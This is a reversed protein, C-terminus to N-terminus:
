DLLDAITTRDVRSTRDLSRTARYRNLADLTRPGAIGDFKGPDFGLLSLKTQLERVESWKLRDLVTRATQTETVADPSDATASPIRLLGAGAVVSALWMIAVMTGAILTTGAIRDLAVLRDGFTVRRDKGRHILIHFDTAVQRAPGPSRPRYVM